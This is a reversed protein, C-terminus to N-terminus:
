PALAAKILGLLMAGQARRSPDIGLEIPSVADDRVRVFAVASGLRVANLAAARTGRRTDLGSRELARVIEAASPQASDLVLVVSPPASEADVGAKMVAGFFLAFALPFVVVWFLAMKDRLLSRLDKGAILLSAVIM